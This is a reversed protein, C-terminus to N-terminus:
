QPREREDNSCCANAVVILMPQQTDYKKRKEVHIKIIKEHVFNPNQTSSMGPRGVCALRFPKPGILM